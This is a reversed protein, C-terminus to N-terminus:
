NVTANFAIAFSASAALSATVATVTSGSVSIGFPDSEDAGSNDDDEVTTASACDTGSRLSNAVYTTTAPITDTATVTTAVSPGPNTILICYRVTAGPISKPNTASIGDGTISSVKTVSLITPTIVLVRYDEVEGFGGLGTAANGSTSSWRFRGFVYTSNPVTAPVTATLRISNAATDGDGAGGDTINAGITENADAFDGDRNWDIWASLFGGGTPVAVTYTASQGSTLNSMTVGDDVDASATPSNYPTQENTVTAGMRFGTITRHSATAYSPTGSTPADSQDFPTLVGFALAQSGGAMISANLTVTAGTTELVATGGGSDPDNTWYAQNPTPYSLSLAGTQEVLSWATGNTTITMSENFHGTDEADATVFRIPVSIGNLTASLQLNFQPDQSAFANGIGIPNLGSYLNDLMDGSWSGTSYPMLPATAGTLQGTIVLGGGANWSKTIPSQTAFTGTSGCSWDLWFIQNLYASSGTTAYGSGTTTSGAPCNYSTSQTTLDAVAYDDETTVGNNVTSDADTGSGATIEAINSITTNSFYTTRAVISLTASAGPALRGVNWVGTASDYTTTGSPTASVFTLTSPLDDNVTVGRSSASATSANRATLTYTVNSGAIPSSSSVTKTLSLDVTATAIRFTHDEVEGDAAMSASTMGSTSSFRFRGWTGSTTVATGPVAASFGIIGSTSNTDGAGGDVINSAIQEGADAFDGDDNWDIWASLYKGTGNVVPITFSAQVNRRLPPVVITEDDLDTSDDSAQMANEVDITSNGMLPNTSGTVNHAAVGYSAPADGYDAPITIAMAHGDGVNIDTVIDRVDAVITRYTGTFQISGCGGRPNSGSNSECGDNWTLVAPTNMTRNTTDVIFRTNGSLRTMAASGGGVQTTPSFNYEGADLNFFHLSPNVVDQNFTITMRYSGTSASSANNANLALFNALTLTSPTTPYTYYSASFTAASQTTTTGVIGSTAHTNSRNSITITGSVSGATFSVSNYNAAPTGFTAVGQALATSTPVAMAVLGIILLTLALVVGRGSPFM